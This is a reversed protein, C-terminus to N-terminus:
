VLSLLFVALALDAIGLFTPEIRQDEDSQEHVTTSKRKLDVRELLVLNLGM